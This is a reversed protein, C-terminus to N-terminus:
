SVKWHIDPYDRRLSKILAGGNRSATVVKVRKSLSVCCRTRDLRRIIYRM